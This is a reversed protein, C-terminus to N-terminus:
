RPVFGEPLEDPWPEEGERCRIVQDKPPSLLRGRSRDRAESLERTLGRLRWLLEILDNDGTRVIASDLGACANAAGRLADDLFVSHHVQIGIIRKRM